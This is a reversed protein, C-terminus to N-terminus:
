KDVSQDVNLNTDFQIENNVISNIAINNDQSKQPASLTTIVNQSSNTKHMNFKTVSQKSDKCPILTNNEQLEKKNSEPQKINQVNNAAELDLQDNM